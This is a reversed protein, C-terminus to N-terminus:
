WSRLHYLAIETSLIRGYSGAAEVPLHVHMRSIQRITNCNQKNCVGSFWTLDTCANRRSHCRRRWLREAFRATGARSLERRYTILESKDVTVSDKLLWDATTRRLYDGTYRKSDNAIM